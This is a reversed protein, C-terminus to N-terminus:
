PLRTERVDAIARWYKPPSSRSAPAASGISASSFAAATERQPLTVARISSNLTESASPSIKEKRRRQLLYMSSVAGQSSALSGSFFSRRAVTKYLRASLTTMAEDRSRGKMGSAASFASRVKEQGGRAYASRPM